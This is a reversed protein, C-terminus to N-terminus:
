GSLIDACHLASHTCSLTRDQQSCCSMTQSLWVYSGLFGPVLHTQELTDPSQTVPGQLQLASMAQDDGLLHSCHAMRASPCLSVQCKDESRWGRQMASEFRSRLVVFEAQGHHPPPMEVEFERGTLPSAPDDLALRMVAMTDSDADQGITYKLDVVRAPEAPRM